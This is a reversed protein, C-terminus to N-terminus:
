ERLNKLDSLLHWRAMKLTQRSGFGRLPQNCAM